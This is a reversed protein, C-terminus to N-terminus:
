VSREVDVFELETEADLAAALREQSELGGDVNSGLVASYKAAV